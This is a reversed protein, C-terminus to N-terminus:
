HRDGFPVIRLMRLPVTKRSGMMQGDIGLGTGPHVLGMVIPRWANPSWYLDVSKMAGPLPLSSITKVGASPPAFVVIFTKSKSAGPTARAHLREKEVLVGYPFPQTTPNHPKQRVTAM